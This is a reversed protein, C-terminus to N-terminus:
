LKAREFINVEVDEWDIADSQTDIFDRIEEEAKRVDRSNDSDLALTLRDFEAQEMEVYRHYRVVEAIGVSVKVKSM